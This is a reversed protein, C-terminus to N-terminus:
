MYDQLSNCKIILDNGFQLITQLIYEVINFFAVTKLLKNLMKINIYFTHTHTNTYQYYVCTHAYNIFIDPFHLIICDIVFLRKSAEQRKIMVVKRKRERERKRDTEREKQINRKREVNVCIFVCMLIYTKHPHLFYKLIQIFFIIYLMFIFLSWATTTFRDHFSM